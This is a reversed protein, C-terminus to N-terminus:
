ATPDLRVRRTYDMWLPAVRKLDSKTILIPVGVQGCLVVGMLKCLM